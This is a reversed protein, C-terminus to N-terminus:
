EYETFCREVSAYTLSAGLNFAKVREPHESIATRDLAESVVDPDINEGRAIYYGAFCDASLESPSTPTGTDGAVRNRVDQIAHGAEHAIVIRAATEGVESEMDSVVKPTYIIKDWSEPIGDCYLSTVRPQPKGKCVALPQEEITVHRIDAGQEHWFAAIKRLMVEPSEATFPRPAPTGIRPAATSTTLEESAVPEGGTVTTCGTLMVAAIGAAILPRSLTRNRM